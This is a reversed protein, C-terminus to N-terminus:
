CATEQYCYRVVDIFKKSKYYKLPIQGFTHYNNGGVKNEVQNELLVVKAAL